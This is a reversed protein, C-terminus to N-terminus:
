PLLREAKQLLERLKPDRTRQYIPEVVRLAKALEAQFALKGENATERSDLLDLLRELETRALFLSAKDFIRGYADDHQHPFSSLTTQSRNERIFRDVLDNLVESQDLGHSKCLIEFETLNPEQGKFYKTRTQRKLKHEDRAM